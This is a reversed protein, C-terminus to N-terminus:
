FLSPAGRWACGFGPARAAVCWRADRWLDGVAVLHQGAYVLPLADRMWPLIGLEQCLHQLTQTKGRRQVKLMEGGRRRRVTLAAPLRAPDLGGQLPSWELVGLEGGLDLRPAEAIPWECQRNLAPSSAPT